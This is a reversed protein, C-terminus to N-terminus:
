SSPRAEDYERVLRPLDPRGMGVLYDRLRVGRAANVVADLDLDPRSFVVEYFPALEDDSAAMNALCEVPCGFRPSQLNIDAGGDLLREVLVAEAEVEHEQSRGFLVHLVNINDSAGVVSADAGDDLLLNAIRVRSLPDKNAMAGMLATGGDSRRYTLAKERDYQAVFEEFSDRKARMWPNWVM